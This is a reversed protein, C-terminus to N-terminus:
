KFITKLKRGAQPKSSEFTSKKLLGSNSRGRPRDNLQHNTKTYSQNTSRKAVGGRSSETTSAGKTLQNERRNSSRDSKTPRGPVPKASHSVSQNLRSVPSLHLGSFSKEPNARYLVLLKGIHQVPQCLTASVIAALIDLRSQRDDGSVRVKILQHAQLNIDIEKIVAATLGKEGIMVVPNLHHALAKLTKRQVPTLETNPISHLM